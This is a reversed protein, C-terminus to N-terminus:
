PLHAGVPAGPMGPRAAVVAASKQATYRTTGFTKM